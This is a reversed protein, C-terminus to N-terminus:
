VTDMFSREVKSFIMIGTVLILLTCSISYLFMAGDFSGSGYVAYRFGEVLSSLPNWQIFVKYSSKELFSLPYAVPTVYMLLQVGFGILVTLDRYKTTLSSIIIGLGLGFLAMVIAIVPILLNHWGPTFQYQGTFHYWLTVALLLGFQIGFRALNSIVISLPTVLRPFYVKGFIGANAVFTGSTANLCSAFYNWISIGCMYFMVPPLDGTSIRAIRNFVILFMTTTLAPQIIYWLPGLITQRYQAIMDRRVFLFILDRYHWLEKLRIDFLHAKPSIVETWSEESCETTAANINQSDTTIKM